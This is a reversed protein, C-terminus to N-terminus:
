RRTIQKAARSVVAVSEKFNACTIGTENDRIIPDGDEDFALILGLRKIGKYRILDGVRVSLRWCAHTLGSADAM